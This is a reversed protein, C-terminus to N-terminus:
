KKTDFRHCGDEAIFRVGFSQKSEYELGNIRRQECKGRKINEKKSFFGMKQKINAITNFM